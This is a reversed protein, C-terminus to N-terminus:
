SSICWLDLYLDIFRRTSIMPSHSHSRSNPLSKKHLVSYAHIVYSLNTYSDFTFGKAKWCISNLFHFPLCCVPIFYQYVCLHYLVNRHNYIARGCSLTLFCANWKFVPLVNVYVSWQLLSVCLFILVHFPGWGLLSICSLLLIVLQWM